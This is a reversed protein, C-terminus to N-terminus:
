RKPWGLEALVPFHDSTQVEGQHDTITTVRKATFGRTFIWDIRKDAKGTFNHFTMEPGLKQPASDRADTLRTALLKHAESGPTTNFDGTLVVPLDGAMAEIRELILAAGKTRADEDEDRYPLHTNFAYFRRGGKVTEFLGWTVMRPLPHGWTISGVVEPTDSLWFQGSEILKLRDTRYFVGMHEDAHGGRRDVGFWAYGKLRAALFDGQVKLLEQTGFLDPAAKELMAATVERRKSWANAGDNENAYRVNFSMVKLPAQAMAPGGAVLLVALMVRWLIRM